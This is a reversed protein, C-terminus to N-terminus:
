ACGQRWLTPGGLDVGSYGRLSSIRDKRPPDCRVEGVTIERRAIRIDEFVDHWRGEASRADIIHGGLLNRLNNILANCGSSVQGDHDAQPRVRERRITLRTEVSGDSLLHRLHVNPDTSSVDSRRERGGRKPIKLLVILRIPTSQNRELDDLTYVM